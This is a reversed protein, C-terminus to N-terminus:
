EHCDNIMIKFMIRIRYDKSRCATKLDLCQFEDLLHSGTVLFTLMVSLAATESNLLIFATWMQKWNWYEYKVLSFINTFLLLFVFLLEHNRKWLKTLRDGIKILDNKYPHNDLSDDEVLSGAAVLSDDDESSDDEELSDAVVLSAGEALLDAASDM